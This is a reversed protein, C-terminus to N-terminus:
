SYYKAPDGYTFMNGCCDIQGCSIGRAVYIFGDNAFATSWSNKVIWYDGHTQHTGYGVLTVSHDISEGAVKKCMAPTIFCDGTAECGKTRYGFVDSAIGTQTPGNRHVFAVLQDESPAAGTTFTFNNFATGAIVQASDYRCPQGPIPPDVDPGTNNFPYSEQSMFGKPAFFSMQDQDWGICEVLM